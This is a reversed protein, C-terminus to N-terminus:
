AKSWDTKSIQLGSFGDNDRYSYKPIAKPYQDNYFSAIQTFNVDYMSISFYNKKFFINNYVDIASGTNHDGPDLDSWTTGDSVLKLSDSFVAFIKGAYAAVGTFAKDPDALLYMTTDKTWVAYNFLTPNNADAYLLGHETAAYFKSGDNAVQHVNTSVGGAGIYYTDKIEQRQLDVVVIGFECSLYAIHNLFMINNISKGGVINKLKIDPLNVVSGDDFLLDINSSQYAILLLRDEQSYRITTIEFDSLGTLRSYRQISADSKKYSFLAYQTACYVLDNGGSVIKGDNYPLHIRWKDLGVMPNGVQAFSLLSAFCFLLFISISKMSRTIPETSLSAVERIIQVPVQPHLILFNGTNGVTDNASASKM